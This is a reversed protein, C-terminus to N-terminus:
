THHNFIRARGTPAIVTITNFKGHSNRLWISGNTATGTSSFLVARANVEVHTDLRFNSDDIFVGKPLQYDESVKIRTAGDPKRFVFVRSQSSDLAVGHPSQQTIAMTRAQHLAAVVVQSGLRLANGSKFGIFYGASISLIISMIALVVLLEVLTFSSRKMPHTYCVVRVLFQYKKALFNM